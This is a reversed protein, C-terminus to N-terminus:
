YYHFSSPFLFLDSDGVLDAGHAAVLASSFEFVAGVLVRGLASWIEM